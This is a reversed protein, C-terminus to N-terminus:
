SVCLSQFSVGERDRLAGELNRELQLMKTGVTRKIEDTNASLAKAGTTLTALAKVALDVRAELFSSVEWIDAPARAKGSSSGGVGASLVESLRAQLAAGIPM